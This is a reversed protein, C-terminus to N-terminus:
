DCITPLTRLIRILRLVALASSRIAPVRWGMMWHTIGLNQLSHIDEQFYTLATKFSTEAEVLLSRDSSQKVLQTQYMKLSAVGLKQYARGHETPRVNVNPAISELQERM